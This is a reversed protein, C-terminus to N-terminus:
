CMGELNGGLRSSSDCVVRWVGYNVGCDVQAPRLNGHRGGGRGRGVECGSVREKREPNFGTGGEHLLVPLLLWSSQHERWTLMEGITAFALLRELRFGREM